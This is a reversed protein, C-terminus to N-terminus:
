LPGLRAFAERLTVATTELDQPLVKVDGVVPMFNTDGAWRPVVHLHVHEASAGAASGQNIGINFGDPHMVDTLVQIARQTAAFIAGGEDPTMALVGPTHRIPVAMLHGSTYPFRNLLVYALTGRDVILSEDGGGGSAAACLFCAESNGAPAGSVYAM